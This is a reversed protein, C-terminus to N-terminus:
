VRKASSFTNKGACKARYLAADAQQILKKENSTTDPYSSIGISVTVKYSEGSELKHRYEETNKQIRKTIEKAELLDCDVLIVMFEDGGRRSVIDFSRCTELLINGVIKLVKDGETHGYIDNITKFNDIDIFLISLKKNQEKAKKISKNLSEDLQRFNFLGTLYDKKSEEYAKEYAIDETLFSNILHFLGISLLIVGVFYSIVVTGYMDCDLTLTFSINGVILILINTYIWKYSMKTQIKSILICWITIILVVIAATVSTFNLGFYAIRFFNIVCASTLASIASSYLAMLVIPLLRFDIIQTPTVHVSYIMLVIGLFGALIGVIFKSIIKDLLYSLKKVLINSISVSAILITANVFLDSIIQIM